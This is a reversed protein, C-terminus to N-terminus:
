PSEFYWQPASETLGFLIPYGDGPLNKLDHGVINPQTISGVPWIMVYNDAFWQQLKAWLREGDPSMTPVAKREVHIDFFEQLYAPPKRGQKGATNIYEGSAPAWDGKGRPWYDQSIGSAHGPQDNWMVTMMYENNRGKEHFIQPAVQKATANIGIAQLYQSILLAVDIQDPSAGHTMIQIALTSGDPYTRFGKGDRTTMGLEDLLGNAQDPDYDPTTVLDDMRYKGFYLSDNIDHKDIALAVAKGFRKQPDQVLKQWQSDPTEYDFDQNVFLLPPSNFGGSLQVQYGGREAGELLVPMTPLRMWDSQNVDIEGSLIKLLQAELENINYAHMRDIYPLQQGLTDVWCYYPNREVHVDTESIETTFWAQFHPVGVTNFDRRRGWHNAAKSQLHQKWDVLGVEKALDNLKAVDTYKPHYDKLFKSPRLIMTSDAIWSRLDALFYGYPRDFTLTFSYEDKIELDVLPYRMNGQSHLNSPYAIEAEPYEFLDEFNFRVDETTAPDGNSWKLGKRITFDFVTYDDSANFEEVLVPIMDKTSHDPAWLINNTAIAMVTFDLFMATTELTRGDSYNGPTWDLYEEGHLVGPGAVVPVDPLREEVPPLKGQAVLRALMPAESYKGGAVAAGEADIVEEDTGTAWVGLGSLFMILLIMIITRVSKRM